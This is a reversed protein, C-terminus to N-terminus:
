YMRLPIWINSFQFGFIQFGPLAKYGMVIFVLPFPVGKKKEPDVAKRKQSHTEVRLCLFPNASM